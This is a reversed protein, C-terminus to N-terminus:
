FLAAVGALGVLGAIGMPQLHSAANHTTTASAAASSVVSATSAKSTAAAASSVAPSSAAPASTAPAPSSAPAASTAAAPSSAAPASSAPAASSGVCTADTGPLITFTGSPNTRGLSDRIVLTYDGLALNANWTIANASTTGVTTLPAAGAQGAPVVTIIFPPSTGSFTLQVPLCQQVGTPTNIAPDPAQAFAGVAAVVAVFLSSLQM